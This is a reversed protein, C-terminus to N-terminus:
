TLPCKCACRSNISCPGIHIRPLPASAFNGPPLPQGDNRSLSVAKWLRSNREGEAAFYKRGGAAPTLRPADPRGLTLRGLHTM